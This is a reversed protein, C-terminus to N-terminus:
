LFKQWDLYKKKAMEWMESNKKKDFFISTKRPSTIERARAARWFMKSCFKFEYLPEADTFYSRGLLCQNPRFISQRMLNGSKQDVHSSFIMNFNKKLDPCFWRNQQLRILIKVWRFVFFGRELFNRWIFNISVNLMQFQNAGVLCVLVRWFCM